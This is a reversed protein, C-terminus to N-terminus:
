PTVEDEAFLNTQDLRPPLDLDRTRVVPIGAVKGLRYVDGDDSYIKTAGRTKAIAVIQCDFKLKAWTAPGERPATPVLRALEVAARQDFPEISFVARRNLLDVLRRADAPNRRLLVESLVPTPIAITERPKRDMREILYEVRERAHRLPKGEADRPGATGPHLFLLLTTADIVVM